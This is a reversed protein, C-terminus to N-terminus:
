PESKRHPFFLRKRGIGRTNILRDSIPEYKERIQNFKATDAPCQYSHNPDSENLDAIAQRVTRAAHVTAFRSCNIGEDMGWDVYHRLDISKNPNM